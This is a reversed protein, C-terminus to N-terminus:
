IARVLAHSVSVLVPKRAAAYIAAAVTPEARRRERTQPLAQETAILHALFNAPQRVAAPARESSNAPSLPVLAHSTTTSDGVTATKGTAADRLGHPIRSSASSNQNHIGSLRM